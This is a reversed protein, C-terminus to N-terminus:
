DGGINIDTESAKQFMAPFILEWGSLKGQNNVSGEVVNGHEDMKFSVVADSKSSILTTKGNATIKTTTNFWTCGTLNLCLAIIILWRM